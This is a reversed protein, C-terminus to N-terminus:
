KVNFETESEDPYFTYFLYGYIFGIIFLAESCFTLLIFLAYQVYWPESDLESEQLVDRRYLAINEEATGDWSSGEIIAAKWTPLKKYEAKLANWENASAAFPNSLRLIGNGDYTIGASSWSAGSITGNENTGKDPMSMTYFTEARELNLDRDAKRPWFGRTRAEMWLFAVPFPMHPDDPSLRTAFGHFPKM